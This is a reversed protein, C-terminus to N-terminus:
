AGPIRIKTGFSSACLTGLYLNGVQRRLKEMAFVAPLRQTQPSERTVEIMKALTPVYDQLFKRFVAEGLLFGQEDGQPTLLPLMGGKLTSRM